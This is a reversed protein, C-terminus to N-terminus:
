KFNPKSLDYEKTLKYHITKIFLLQIPFYLFNVVNFNKYYIKYLNPEDVM